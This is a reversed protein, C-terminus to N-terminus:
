ACRVKYLSKFPHEKPPIYVKKRRRAVKIRKKEQPKKAIVKYKLQKDKHYVYIKGNLREEIVVKEARIPELIQYFKKEYQVTFDNRLSARNKISFVRNLDIGKPVEMHVDVKDKAKVAFKRNHKPWYYSHLFKNADKINDIGVLRLEKVLRDQHTEFSREIRGKAQPSRAYIIDVGLEKLARGVQTLSRQNNLEDEISAKKPSKYTTHMDLYVQQPIGNKKVYKKFSEMFPKTGEYEYFNGYMKGTADDIHGILVCKPGRNEFWKHHSGDMQVMKGYSARRERWARHKKTKRKKYEIGEDIFWLRLTEANVEEKEIEFLKESALTPGFGEYKSQCIKIIKQKRKEEIARNSEKGRNKHALGIVGEERVKKKLRRVQRVSIDLINAAEEETINGEIAQQIVGLRRLEDMRMIIIDKGSM